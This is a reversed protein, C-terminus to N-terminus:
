TLEPRATPRSAAPPSIHDTTISDGLMALPRADLIDAPPTPTMSM